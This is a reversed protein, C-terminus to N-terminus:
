EENDEPNEDTDEDDYQSAFLSQALQNAFPLLLEREWGPVGSPVPIAAALRVERPARARPTPDSPPPPSRDGTPARSRTRARSRTTRGHARPKASGTSRSARPQAKVLRALERQEDRLRELERAVDRGTTKARLRATAELEARGLTLRGRAFDVMADAYSALVQQRAGM